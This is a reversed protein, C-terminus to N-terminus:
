RIVTKLIRFISSDNPAFDILVKRGYSEVTGAYPAAAFVIGVISKSPIYTGDPLSHKGIINDYILNRIDQLGLGPDYGSSAAIGWHKIEQRNKLIIFGISSELQGKYNNYDHEDKARQAMSMCIDYLEKAVKEQSADLTNNIKSRIDGIRWMQKMKGM